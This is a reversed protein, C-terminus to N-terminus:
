VPEYGGQCLSDIEDCISRFCQGMLVDSPRPRPLSVTVTKIFSGPRQSMILVRDALYVAERTEHTVLIATPRDALWVREFDRIISSRLFWDLAGFPEDLLLLDPDAVLARAVAVRQAMGGSLQAPYLHEAGQLKVLEILHEVPRRLGDPHLETPLRINDLVNRWSLLAPEQFAMGIRGARRLDDPTRKGILVEGVDPLELGCLIRLLTTKGCGSPGLIATLSNEPLKATVNRLAELSGFTKSVDRITVSPGDSKASANM